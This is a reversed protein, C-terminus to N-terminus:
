PFTLFVSLITHTSDHEPKFSRLILLKYYKDVKGRVKPEKEQGEELVCGGVGWYACVMLHPHDHLQCRSPSGVRRARAKKDGSIKDRLDQKTLTGARSACFYCCVCGSLSLSLPVFVFFPFSALILVTTVCGSQESTKPM